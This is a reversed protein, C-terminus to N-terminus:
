GPLRVHALDWSEPIRVQASPLRKVSQAVCAGRIETIRHPWVGFKSKETFDVPLNWEVEFVHGSLAPSSSESSTWPAM